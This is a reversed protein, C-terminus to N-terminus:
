RRAGRSASSNRGRHRPRPPEPEESAVFVKTLPEYRTRTTRTEVTPALTGVLAKGHDAVYHGWETVVAQQPPPLLSVGHLGLAVGAIALAVNRVFTSREPKPVRVTTLIAKNKAKKGKKAEVDWIPPPDGPKRPALFPNSASPPPPIIAIETPALSRLEEQIQRMMADLLARNHPRLQATGVEEDDYAQEIAAYM